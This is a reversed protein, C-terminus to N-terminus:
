PTPPTAQVPTVQLGCITITGGALVSMPVTEEPAFLQWANGTANPSNDCVDSYAAAFHAHDSVAAPRGTATAAPLPPSNPPLLLAAPPGTSATFIRTSRAAAIGVKGETTLLSLGFYGFVRCTAASKNRVEFDLGVHGAAGSSSAVVVQLDAARCNLPGSPASAGPTAAATTPTASAAASPSPSGTSVAPSTSTCAPLGLAALLGLRALRRRM